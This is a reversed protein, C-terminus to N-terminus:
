IGSNVSKYSRLAVHFFVIALGFFLISGVVAGAVESAQLKGFLFGAPVAAMMSLPIAYLLIREILRPFVSTPFRGTGALNWFGDEGEILREAYFAPAMCFIALAFRVGVGLLFLLFFTLWQGPSTLLQGSAKAVLWIALVGNIMLNPINSIMVESSAALALLPHVPKQLIHDMRGNWIFDPLNFLPAILFCIFFQHSLGNIATLAYMQDSNWGNIDGGALSMGLGAGLFSSALFFSEFLFFYLLNARYALMVSASNALVRLYIALVSRQRV